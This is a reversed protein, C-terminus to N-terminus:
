ASIPVLGPSCPCVRTDMPSTSKSRRSPPPRGKPVSVSSRSTNGNVNNNINESCHSREMKEGKHPTDLMIPPQDAGPKGGPSASELLCLFDKLCSTASELCGVEQMNEVDWVVPCASVAACSRVESSGQQLLSSRAPSSEWKNKKHTQNCSTFKPTVAENCIQISM